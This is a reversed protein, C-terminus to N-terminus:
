GSGMDDPERWAQLPRTARILETQRSGESSDLKTPGSTNTAKLLEQANQLAQLEAAGQCSM